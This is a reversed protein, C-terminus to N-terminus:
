TPNYYAWDNDIEVRSYKMTNGFDFKNSGTWLTVEESNDSIEHVVAIKGTFLNFITDGVKLFDSSDFRNIRKVNFPVTFEKKKHWNIQSYNDSYARMDGIRSDSGKGNQGPKRDKEAMYNATKNAPSLYSM